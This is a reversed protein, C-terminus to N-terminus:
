TMYVIIFNLPFHTLHKSKEEECIPITNVILSIVHVFLTKKEM